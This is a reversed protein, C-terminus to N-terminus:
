TTPTCVQVNSEFASLNSLSDFYAIRRKRWYVIALTWHNQNYHIPILWTDKEAVAGAQRCFRWLADDDGTQHNPFVYSSLFAVNGRTGATELHRLIIHAGLNICDDNLWADPERFRNLCELPFFLPRQYDGTPPITCPGSVDLLNPLVPPLSLM